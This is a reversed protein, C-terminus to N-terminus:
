GQREVLFVSGEEGVGLIDAHVGWIWLGMGSGSSSPKLSRAAAGRFSGMMRAEGDVIDEVLLYDLPIPQRYVQSCTLNLVNYMCAPKTKHPLSDATGGWWWM